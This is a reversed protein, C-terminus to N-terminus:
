KNKYPCDKCNGKGGCRCPANAQEPNKNKMLPDGGLFCSPASIGDPMAAKGCM